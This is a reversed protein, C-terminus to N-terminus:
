RNRRRVQQSIRCISVGNIEEGWQPPPAARRRATVLPGASVWTQTPEEVAQPGEGM